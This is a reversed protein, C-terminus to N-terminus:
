LPGGPVVGQKQLLGFAIAQMDKLHKETAAMQGASGAGEAPRIGATWLADMLAQADANTLRMTPRDIVMNQEVETFRLTEALYLCDKDAGRVSFFVDIANKQWVYQAHVQLPQGNIM